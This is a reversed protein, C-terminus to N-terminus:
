NLSDFAFTTCFPPSFSFTSPSIQSAMVLFFSAKKRSALCFFIVESNLDLFYLSFKTRCLRSGHPFDQVITLPCCVELGSAWYKSDLGSNYIKLSWWPRSSFPHHGSNTLCWRWRGDGSGKALVQWHRWLCGNSINLCIQLDVIYFFFGM